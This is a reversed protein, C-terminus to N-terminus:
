FIKKRKVKKFTCKLCAYIILYYKCVYPFNKVSLVTKKFKKYNLNLIM